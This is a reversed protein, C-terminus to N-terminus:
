EGLSPVRLRLLNVTQTKSKFVGGGVGGPVEASNLFQHINGPTGTLKSVAQPFIGPSSGAALCPEARVGKEGARVSSSNPNAGLEQVSPPDPCRPLSRGPTVGVWNPTRQESCQCGFHAKFGRGEEGREQWPLTRASIFHFCDSSPSMTFRRMRLSCLESPQSSPFARLLTQGWRDGDCVGLPTLVAEHGM